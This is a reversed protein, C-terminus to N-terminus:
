YCRNQNFIYSNNSEYCEKMIEEVTKTLSMYIVKKNDRIM